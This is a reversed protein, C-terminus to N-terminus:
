RSLHITKNVGDHTQRKSRGSKLGDVRPARVKAKGRSIGARAGTHNAAWLESGFVGEFLAPLYVDADVQPFHLGYGSPSIEIEALQAPTATELGETERPSFFIGLNSRLQIVVRRLHRDYRASLARPVRSELERAREDARNLEEHTVM